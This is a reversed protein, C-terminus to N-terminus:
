AMPVHPGHKASYDAVMGGVTLMISIVTVIADMHEWYFGSKRNIFWNRFGHHIRHHIPKHPAKHTLAHHTRKPM